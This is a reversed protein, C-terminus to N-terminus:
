NKQQLHVVRLSSSRLSARVKQLVRAGDFADIGRKALTLQMGGGDVNGVSGNSSDARKGRCISSLFIEWGPKTMDVALTDIDNLNSTSELPDHSTVTNIDLLTEKVFGNSMPCFHRHSNILDFLPTDNNNLSSHNRSTSQSDLRPRKNPLSTEDCTQGNDGSQLPIHCHNLCLRCHVQLHSPQQQEQEGSDQNDAISDSDIARWGFLALLFIESTLNLNINIPDLNMQSLQILSQIDVPTNIGLGAVTHIRAIIDDNDTHGHGDARGDVDIIGTLSHALTRAGICEMLKNTERLIFDRTLFGTETCDEMVQYETSMPMLYLPVNTADIDHQQQKSQQKSQKQLQTQQPNVILWRKADNAFPCTNQHSTALMKRYLLALKFHSIPSLDKHFKFVIMQQCQNCQVIDTIDDNTADTNNTAANAANAANTTCTWGFRACTIPCLLIHRAFKASPQFSRLRNTYSVSDLFLLEVRNKGEEEEEEQQQQNQTQQQTPAAAAAAASIRPQMVVASRTPSNEKTPSSDNKPTGQLVVEQSGEM